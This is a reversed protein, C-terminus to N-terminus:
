EESDMQIGKFRLFTSYGLIPVKEDSGDIGIFKM